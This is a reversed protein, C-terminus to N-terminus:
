RLIFALRYEGSGKGKCRRSRGASVFGWEGFMRCIEEWNRVSEEIAAVKMREKVEQVSWRQAAM